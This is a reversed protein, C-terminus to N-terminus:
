SVLFPGKFHFIFMKFLFKESSGLSSNQLELEKQCREVAQIPKIEM